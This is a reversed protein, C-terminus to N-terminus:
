HRSTRQLLIAILPIGGILLIIGGIAPMGSILLIIGGILLGAAIWPLGPLDQPASGARATAADPERLVRVKAAM